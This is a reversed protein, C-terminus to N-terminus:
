PAERALVVGKAEAFTLRHPCPHQYIANRPWTFGQDFYCAAGGDRVVGFLCGVCHCGESNRRHSLAEAEDCYENGCRECVWLECEVVQREVRFDAVAVEKTKDVM